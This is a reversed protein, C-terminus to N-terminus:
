EWVWWMFFINKQLWVYLSFSNVVKLNEYWIVSRRRASLESAMLFVDSMKTLYFLILITLRSLSRTVVRKFYLLATYSVHVIAVVKSKIYSFRTIMCKITIWLFLVTNDNNKLLYSHTFLILLSLTRGDCMLTASVVVSIGGDQWDEWHSWVEYFNSRAAVQNM